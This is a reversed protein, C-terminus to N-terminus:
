ADVRDSTSPLATAGERADVIQQGSALGPLGRGRATTFILILSILAFSGMFVTSPAPVLGLLLYGGIGGLYRLVRAIPGPVSGGEYRLDVAIDGLTRGTLLVLILWVVVPVWAAMASAIDGAIVAPHDHAIYELWLQTLIGATLAVLSAGLWDCLMATFRRGRTVPRPESADARKSMGRYRRPVVLGVVSGLLAGITNTLMDDVDFVRYACPYLGWVGTLQTTEIFVSLGLGVLLATFIGRGGLVRLFFGLPMFLLVNMLLQLVVTDTLTNGPRAIAGRIDDVFELLNINTGVCVVADPDPLPLLTYTWIAWFYVLFAGWLVFRGITLGGRRRYSVAVFPVFLVLGALVGLVIAVVGLTVQEM